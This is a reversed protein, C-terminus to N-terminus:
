APVRVLETAIKASLLCLPIGGGPHVSGGCFYLGKIRQSFNPHRWFASFANNSSSGYLAGQYSSTRQEILGPHLVSENQIRGEIKQQLIREIKAIIRERAIPILENWNMTDRGPVNIMVFWNECDSPADEKAVKSSVHIYVTPDEVLKFDDFLAKFEGQYDNSFLINHVDLEPYIEEIGWYFILASSSREQKLTKEPAPENALLKRYTPVVDMNSFVIDALLLEDNVVVGKAVGNEVEIAQVRQNTCFTVGLDKALQVLSQTIAHMGGLPFYAGQNHELHPIISLVGPAKYPNSGNYTAFRNFLQVLHKEKLKSQHVEDMTSTLNLQHVHKFAEWVDATFYNKWQHLSQELFVPATKNYLLASHELFDLIVNREVGVKSEVEAAFEAPNAYGHIVTGDEWFYHCTKDLRKYQFYDTPKKGALTFLEDVLFPMTFLSPGADFRYGDQEFATLKGGLYNNAEHVHVQYGKVALRISSAIGAIGSGIIRAIM